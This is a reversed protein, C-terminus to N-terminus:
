WPTRARAGDTQSAAFLCTRARAQLGGRDRHGPPGAAQRHAPLVARGGLPPHRDRAHDRRVDRDDVRPDDRGGRPLRRGERRGALRRRVPRPRHHTALDEPLTVAALVKEKEARLDDADFRSRAGGDRDAGAAAAPPEPHRRPGRRHRRLLRGPRRRRHGRGDHDARPRRLQRELDARVAPQRLAAGPHEAGDGQRPLPRHPVGLRAPVVSTSSTTSSAAGIRLDHGFPKEIVVRRWTPRRAADRSAPHKCSSASRDPLGEAPDVPLVRPQGPAASPTSSTSRRARAADFADADDFEGQVFRIGQLSSSGSRRASRRARTSSSPTRCSRARLGRGGLRPPRLRGARLGAAAPRPQRPRLGGAHAEQPVLDGTVGFIVLASPGAIRNLRHDEADRLPNHGRSIEVTM